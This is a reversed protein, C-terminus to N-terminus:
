REEPEFLDIVYYPVDIIRARSPVFKASATGFYNM